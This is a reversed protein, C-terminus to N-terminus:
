DIPKQNTRTASQGSSQVAEEARRLAQRVDKHNANATALAVSIYKNRPSMASDQIQRVSAALSAPTPATPSSQSARDSASSLITLALVIAAGAVILIPADRRPSNLKIESNAQYKM